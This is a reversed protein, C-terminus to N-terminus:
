TEEHPSESADLMNTLANALQRAVNREVAITAFTLRTAQILEKGKTTGDMIEVIDRSFQIVPRAGKKDDEMGLVVVSECYEYIHNSTRRIVTSRNDVKPQNDHDTM